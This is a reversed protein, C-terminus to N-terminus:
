QLLVKESDVLYLELNRLTPRLKEADKPKMMKSYKKSKRDMKFNHNELEKRLGAVNGEVQYKRYM